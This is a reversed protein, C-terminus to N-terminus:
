AQSFEEQVLKKSPFNRGTQLIGATENLGVSVSFRSRLFPKRQFNGVVRFRIRVMRVLVIFPFLLV